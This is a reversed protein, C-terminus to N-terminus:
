TITLPIEQSGNWLAWSLPSPEPDLTGLTAGENLQTSDFDVIDGVEAGEIRLQYRLQTTGAPAIANESVIQQWTGDALISTGKFNATQGGQDDLFQCMVQITKPTAGTNWRMFAGASYAQGPTAAMPVAQANRNGTGTSEFTMFASGRHAGGSTVRALTGQSSSWDTLGVEFSPDNLLNVAAQAGLTVRAIFTDGPLGAPVPDGPALRVVSGAVAQNPGLLPQGRGNISWRRAAGRNWADRVEIVPESGSVDFGHAKISPEDKRVAWTRVLGSENVWFTKLLDGNPDAARVMWPEPIFPDSSDFDLDLLEHYGVEAGPASYATHRRRSHVFRNLSADYVWLSGDEPESYPAIVVVERGWRDVTEAPDGTAASWNADPASNAELIDGQTATFGLFDYDWTGARDFVWKAM